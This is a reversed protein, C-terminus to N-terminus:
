ASRLNVKVKMAGKPKTCFGMVQACTLCSRLCLASPLHSAAFGRDRFLRGPRAIVSGGFLFDGERSAQSRGLVSPVMAAPTM